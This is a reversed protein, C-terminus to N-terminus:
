TVVAFVYHFVGFQICFIKFREEICHKIYCVKVSDYYACLEQYSDGYFDRYVVEETTTLWEQFKEIAEHLSKVKELGEEFFM